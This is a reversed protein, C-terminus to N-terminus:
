RLNQGFTALSSFFTAGELSVPTCSVFDPSHVFADGTVLEGVFIQATLVEGTFFSLLVLSHHNVM